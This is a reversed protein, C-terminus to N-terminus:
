EDIGQLYKDLLWILPDRGSHGLRVLRFYMHTSETRKWEFPSFFVMRSM